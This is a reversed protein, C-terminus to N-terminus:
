APVGDPWLLETARVQRSSPYSILGLSRLRGLNNGYASSIPSAGVVEALEERPVSDPWARLLARVIAAQPGPLLECWRHQLQDATVLEEAVEAQARGTDTLCVRASAPYAILGLTRLRGLNNGYASSRPSALAYVAVVGRTVSSLGVSEFAVLADLIRQQPGSVTDDDGSVEASVPPAPTAKPEYRAQRSVPRSLPPPAPATPAPRQGNVALLMKEGLGILTAASDRLHRELRDTYGSAERVAAMHERDRIGVAAEVRREILAEDPPAQEKRAAGVQRRLVANEKKLDVDQQVVFQRQEAAKQFRRIVASVDVRAPQVPGEGRKPTRGAHYTVRQRVRLRGIEGLWEPSLLWADGPKFAPLSSLIARMQERDGVNHEFWEKVADLDRPGSMRLVFLNDIQTLVDKSVAAPRQSILTFGIGQGGGGKILRELAGLVLKQEEWRPTQPVFEHAEELFLHRPTENIAFLRNAFDTVFRKRAAMSAMKLDVVCSINTECVIEALAVGMHEDLPVDGYKGGVILVDLGAAEGPQGRRDRYKIGWHASAPDLCVWPDGRRCFTEQMTGALVSKGSRRRALIGFGQTIAEEPLILPEGSELTGISEPLAIM